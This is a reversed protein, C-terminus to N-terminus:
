FESKRERIMQSLLKPFILLVQTTEEQKCYLQVSVAAFALHYPGETVTSKLPSGRYKPYHDSRHTVGGVPTSELQHKPRLFGGENASSM